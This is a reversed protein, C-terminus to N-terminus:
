YIIISIKQKNELNVKTADISYSTSLINSNAITLIALQQDKHVIIIYGETTKKNDGVKKNPAVIAIEQEIIKQTLSSKTKLKQLSDLTYSLENITLM